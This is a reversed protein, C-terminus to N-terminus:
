KSAGKVGSNDANVAAMFENNDIGLAEAAAKIGDTFYSKKDVRRTIAKFAEEDGDHIAAKAEMTLQFCKDYDQRYLVALRRRIEDRTITNEM